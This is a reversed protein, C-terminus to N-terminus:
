TTQNEEEELDVEDDEVDEQSTDQNRTKADEKKKSQDDKTTTTQDQLLANLEAKVDELDQGGRLTQQIEGVIKKIEDEEFRGSGGLTKGINKLVRKDLDQAMSAAEEFADSIDSIQTEDYSDNWREAAATSIQKGAKVGAAAATKMPGTLISWIAKFFNEELMHEVVLRGQAERILENRRAKIRKRERLTKKTKSIKNKKKSGYVLAYEEAIIRKLQNKTIKM